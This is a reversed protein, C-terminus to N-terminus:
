LFLAILASLYEDGIFIFYLLTLAFIMAVVGTITVFPQEDEKELAEQFAPSITPRSLESDYRERQIPDCLVHVAQKIANAQAQMQLYQQQKEVDGLASFAANIEQARSKAAQKIEEINANSTIGLVEYYNLPVSM